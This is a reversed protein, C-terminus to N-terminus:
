YKISIHNKNINIYLKLAQERKVIPVWTWCKYNGKNQYAKRM